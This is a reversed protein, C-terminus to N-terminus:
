EYMTLYIHGSHLVSWVLLLFIDVTLKM